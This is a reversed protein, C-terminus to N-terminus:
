GGGGGGGGVQGGEAWRTRGPPAHNSSQKAKKSAPEGASTSAISIVPKEPADSISGGQIDDDSGQRGLSAAPNGATHLTDTHVPGLVRKSVALVEREMKESEAFKGQRALSDALHGASTM